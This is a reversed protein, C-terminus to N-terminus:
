SGPDIFLPDKKFNDVPMTGNLGNVSKSTGITKDKKSRVLCFICLLFCVAFIAAVGGMAAYVGGPLELLKHAAGCEKESEDYGSPCNQHGPFHFPNAIIKSYIIHIHKHICTTDTYSAPRASNYTIAISVTVGYIVISAHMSKPVSTSM